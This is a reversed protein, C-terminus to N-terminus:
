PRRRPAERRELASLRFKACGQPLREEARPRRPARTRSSGAGCSLSFEAAICAGRALRRKLGDRWGDLEPRANQVPRGPRIGARDRGVAPGAHRRREAGIRRQRRGPVRQEPRQLGAGDVLQDDDALDALREVPADRGVATVRLEDVSRVPEGMQMAQTRQDIGHHDADAGREGVVRLERHPAHRARVRRADDDVPAAPQRRGRAQEGLVADAAQDHGVGARGGFQGGPDLM